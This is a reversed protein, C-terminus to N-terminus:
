SAHTSHSCVQHKNRMKGINKILPNIKVSHVLEKGGKQTVEGDRIILQTM